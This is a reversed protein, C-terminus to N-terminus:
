KGVAAAIAEAARQVLPTILDEGDANAKAKDSKHPLIVKGDTSSVSYDISMEDHARTSSAVSAVAETGVVAADVGIHSAMGTYPVYGAASGAAQTITKFKSHNGHHKEEMTVTLVRPCNKQRAEEKAQSALRAELPVAKMSPGTLFSVFLSRVGTAVSDAQGEVGTILPQVVAICVEGGGTAGANQAYIPALALFLAAAVALTLRRTSTM